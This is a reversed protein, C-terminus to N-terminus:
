AWLAEKNEEIYSKADALFAASRQALSDITNLVEKPGNVGPWHAYEDHAGQMVAVVRLMENTILLGELSLEPM